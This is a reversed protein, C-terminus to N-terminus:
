RHVSGYMFNLLQETEELVQQVEQYSVQEAPLAVVLVEPGYQACGVHVLQDQIYVTSSTLPLLLPQIACLCACACVCVFVCCVCVFLCVYLCVGVCVFVCVFVCVCVNNHLCMNLNLFM